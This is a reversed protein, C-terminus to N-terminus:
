PCLQLEVVLHLQPLLELLLSAITTFVNPTSIYCKSFLTHLIRYNQLYYIYIYTTQLETRQSAHFKVYM